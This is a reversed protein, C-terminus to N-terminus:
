KKAPCTTIGLVSYLPCFGVLSTLLFVAALIAAIMAFTGSIGGSFYLIAVVVAVVVRISIDIKGMNKKM